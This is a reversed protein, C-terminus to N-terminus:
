PHAPTYLDPLRYSRYSYGNAELNYVINGNLDVEVAQAAHGPDNILGSGFSAYMSNPPSILLQASGLAISYQGLDALTALYVTRAQEGVYLVMGRSDGSGCQKHRLNGDDFVTFVKLANTQIPFSADHQHTFWPFVQPDGCPNKPPNQVTFDGYPGMRWLLRGDGQGNNYNIKIVWDQSRESILINGDSTLQLANSHLWDNAQNFNKNFAPCGAGSNQVCVDDLTAERSLDQHAFSDWAWTLQMNHDLVLVMDGLIDVPDQQTGGQYVTSVEDRAGLLMINGNPLRLTEHANFSTMVPYGKAALQENLIETNTQLVLHGALDWESLVFNTLSFFNGGAEARTIGLEGPFYWVVNGTLDTALPWAALPQGVPPLFQFLILPFAADHQSPPVLVKTQLLPFGPPLPGTTFPLDPGSNEFNNAFEEWHMQYLTSPLMGAVLFNASNSSCPVSNTTMSAQAGSQQFRVRLSHGVTCPGASFLAVLPHSTPNVISGGPTTVWPLLVYKALARPFILYPQQTIDRVIVSVVYTGEVTYPVWTFANPLDFDRVVQSTGQLAASFQYDYIHGPPANNVTATWVINAGLQQPSQLSPSLTISLPGAPATANAFAVGSMLCLAFLAVVGVSFAKSL